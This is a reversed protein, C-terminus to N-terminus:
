PTTFPPPIVLVHYHPPHHEEILVIVGKKRDALLRETLWSREAGGIFRPALAIDVASGTTHSSCIETACSAPSNHQRRQDSYSRVLSGVRLPTYGSTFHEKLDQALTEIYSKVWPRAYRRESPLLESFVLGDTSLEVLENATKGKEIDSMLEYRSLGMADALCVEYALQAPSGALADSDKNAFNLTFARDLRGEEPFMCEKYSAIREKTSQSSFIGGFRPKYDPAIRAVVKGLPKHRRHTGGHADSAVPFSLTCAVVLPLLINKM